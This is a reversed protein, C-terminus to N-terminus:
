EQLNVGVSPHRSVPSEYEAPTPPCEHSQMELSSRPGHREARAAWEWPHCPVLAEQSGSVGLDPTYLSTETDVLVAGEAGLDGPLWSVAPRPSLDLGAPCKVNGTLFAVSSQFM